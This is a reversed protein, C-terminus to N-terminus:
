PAAEEDRYLLERRDSNKLVNSVFLGFDLDERTTDPAAAIHAVVRNFSARYVVDIPPETDFSLQAKNKSVLKWSVTTSDNLEIVGAGELFFRLAADDDRYLVALRRNLTSYQGRAPAKRNPVVSRRYVRLNGDAPRFDGVEGRDDYSYVRM